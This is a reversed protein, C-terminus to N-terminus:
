HSGTSKNIRKGSSIEFLKWVVRDFNNQYCWEAGLKPLKLLGEKNNGNIFLYALVVIKFTEDNIEGFWGAGWLAQLIRHNVWGSTALAEVFREHGWSVIRAIKKDKWGAKELVKIIKEDEWGAEVLKYIIDESRWGAKELANVKHEDSILEEEVQLFRIIREKAPSSFEEPGSVLDFIVKQFDERMKQTKGLLNVDSMKKWRSAKEPCTDKENNEGSM